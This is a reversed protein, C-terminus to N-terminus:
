NIKKCKSELTKGVVRENKFKKSKQRYIVKEMLIEREKNMILVPGDLTKDETVIQDFELAKGTKSKKKKTVNKGKDGNEASNSTSLKAMIKNVERPKKVEHPKM